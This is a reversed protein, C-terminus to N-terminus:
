EMNGVMTAHRRIKDVAAVIQQLEQEDDLLVPHHLVLTHEDAATAHPLDGVARFRRRGHTLHLSRFGPDLAIGEARVAEAFRDRSLGAFSEPDFRLALKYYARDSEDGAIGYASLGEVGALMSLLRAVNGARRAHREALRDYQPLVVAAQMESLPYADNGRHAYLRIRQAVDDRNTLVAGGRGATVLKSGGFSFVGVDGWMGAPRGAVTAGHAQCADEVIAFGREDALQRLRPMDVIGGHLHSAIVARTRDTIAASVQGVDLQLDDPNIDVLVPTAGLTLVDVFNAKYDYAALIVEDGDAVQLGRLALEIAATGSSCLIAQGCGHLERLRERLADCHPGHYRGWSGDDALQQLVARM